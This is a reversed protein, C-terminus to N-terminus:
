NANIKNKLAQVEPDYSNNAWYVYIGTLLWAAVIIAFGVPLAWPIFNGLKVALLNKDFAVVLLFGIYIVLITVTLIISVSWRKKVLRKFEPSEIVATAHTHTPPM